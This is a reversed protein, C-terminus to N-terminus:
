NKILEKIKKMEEPYDEVVRYIAVPISVPWAYFGSLVGSLCGILNFVTEESVQSKKFHPDIYEKSYYDVRPFTSCCWNKMRDGYRYGIYGGSAMGVLKLGCLINVALSMEECM